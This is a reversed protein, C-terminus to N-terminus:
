LKAHIVNKPLTEAFMYGMIPTQNPSTMPGTLFTFATDVCASKDRVDAIKFEENKGLPWSYQLNELQLNYAIPEFFTAGFEFVLQSSDVFSISDIVLADTINPEQQDETPTFKNKLDTYTKDNAVLSIKLLAVASNETNIVPFYYDIRSERFNRYYGFASGRQKAFFNFTHVMMQIFNTNLLRINNADSVTGITSEVLKSTPDDGMNKMKNILVPWGKELSLAAFSIIQKQDSINKQVQESFESSKKLADDVYYYFSTGIAGLVLVAVGTLRWLKAKFKEFETQPLVIPEPEQEETKEEKKEETKETTTNEEPKKETESKIEQPKPTLQEPTTAYFRPSHRLPQITFIKSHVL